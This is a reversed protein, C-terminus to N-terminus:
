DMGIRFNIAQRNEIEDLTRIAQRDAESQARDNLKLDHALFVHKRRREIVAIIVAILIPIIIALVTYNM